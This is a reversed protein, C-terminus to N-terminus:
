YSVMKGFLPLFFKFIKETPSDASGVFSEIQVHVALANGTVGSAHSRRNALSNCYYGREPCALNRAGLRPSDEFKLFKNIPNTKPAGPLIRVQPRRILLGIKPRKGDNGM